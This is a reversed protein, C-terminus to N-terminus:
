AGPLGEGWRLKRRWTTWVSHRPNRVLLFDRPYRTIIVREGVAVPERVRGDVIAITGENARTVTAALRRRSDLVVSRYTLAHPCIPTFIFSEATPELIPGGAALNHATSGSATSIILGDGRINAVEDGDAQVHIDIMRFPYGALIVCDNVALTRVQRSDAHEICVDLMLRRTVPLEGAFLFDGERELQEITFEALYGLKGINVGLIPVQDMGLGHVAALMTGDGGLVILLDPRAPVAGASDYSIQAFVVEARGELWRRLRTMTAGVDPKQPSGIIAIRKM